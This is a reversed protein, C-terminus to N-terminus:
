EGCAYHIGFVGYLREFSEATEGRKCYDICNACLGWGTDRNHWQVGRTAAGCCSCLLRRLPQGKDENSALIVRGGIVELVGVGPHQEMYANAQTTGEDTDPYEAAVAFVRGALTHYKAAAHYDARLAWVEDVLGGLTLCQVQDCYTTLRKARESDLPEGAELEEVLGGLSLAKDRCYGVIRKALDAAKAQITM